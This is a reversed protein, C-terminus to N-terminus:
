NRGNQQDLKGLVYTFVPLAVLVIDKAIIKEVFCQAIVLLFVLISFIMVIQVQFKRESKHLDHNAKLTALQAGDSAGWDQEGEASM